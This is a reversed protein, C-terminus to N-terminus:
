GDPEIGDGPHDELNRLFAWVFPEGAAFAAFCRHNGNRIQVSRYGLDAKTWPRAGPITAVIHGMGGSTIHVPGSGCGYEQSEQVDIPDIKGVIAAVCCPFIVKRANRITQVFYAFKFPDFTNDAVPYAEAPYVKVMEGPSGMWVCKKGAFPKGSMDDGEYRYRSLAHPPRYGERLLYAAYYLVPSWDWAPPRNHRSV